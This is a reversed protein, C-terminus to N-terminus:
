GYAVKLSCSRRLRAFFLTGQAAPLAKHGVIHSAAEVVLPVAFYCASATKTKRKEAEQGAISRGAHRGRTLALTGEGKTSRALIWRRLKAVSVESRGADM